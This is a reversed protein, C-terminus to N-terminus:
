LLARAELWRQIQENVADPADEPLLRGAKLLLQETIHAKPFRKSWITKPRLTDKQGELILVPVAVDGLIDQGQKSLEVATARQMLQALCDSGVFPALYRSILLDPMNDSNAVSQTLLPALAPKAGFITNATMATLASQRQLSRIEAGPLDDPDPPSLLVIGDVRLRLNAAILLAVIGGIGQGVFIASPIRLAALARSVHDAQADLSYDADDPRDSEGHGLLDVAIATHGNAALSPAVHRWLFACTGFGHLLVFPAGGRGVRELHLSGAGVPIRLHEVHMIPSIQGRSYRQQVKDCTSM